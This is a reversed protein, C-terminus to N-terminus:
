NNENQKIENVIVMDEPARLPTDNNLGNNAVPNNIRAPLKKSNDNIVMLEDKKVKVNRPKAAEIVKLILIIYLLLQM